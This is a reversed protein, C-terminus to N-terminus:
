QLTFQIPLVFTVPVAKGNLTGPTWNPMAKVVRLAEADCEASIGRRVQVDSLSGDAKVVFQVMVRGQVGDNKAQEPYRINEKLFSVMAEMGGPFEPQRDVVVEMEAADVSEQPADPVVAAKTAVTEMPEQTEPNCGFLVLLAAVPLASVVKWAGFRTKSTNMMVIRKKINISHFNNTIYGYGIGTAQRYLLRLYDERGCVGLAAADAQYEHVNLLERGLLWAFPNFWALCCLLRVVVVDVSHCRRVHLAEHALICRLEGEGLDRTGVVIHNFFSYPATDDQPLILRAHRPLAYGDAATCVPGRRRLLSVKVAQVAVQALLFAVTLLVGTRYLWPLTAALSLGGGDAPVTVVAGEYTLLLSVAPVEDSWTRPLEVLPLLLSFALASLLYLRSLQLWRDKRLTLRYLGYLLGSALTSLVIWHIM